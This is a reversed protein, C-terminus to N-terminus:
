NQVNYKKKHFYRCLTAVIPHGNENLHASWLKSILLVAYQRAQNTINITVM